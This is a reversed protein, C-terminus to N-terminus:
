VSQALQKYINKRKINILGLDDHIMKYYHYNMVYVILKSRLYVILVLYGILSLFYLTMVLENDILNFSLILIIAVLLVLFSFSLIILARNKKKKFYNLEKHHM